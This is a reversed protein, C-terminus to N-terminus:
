WQGYINQAVILFEISQPIVIFLTMVKRLCREWQRCEAYMGMNFPIHILITSHQRIELTEKCQSIHKLTHTHETSQHYRAYHRDKLIKHHANDTAHTRNTPNRDFHFTFLFNQITIMKHLIIHYNSKQLFGVFFSTLHTKWREMANICTQNMWIWIILNIM